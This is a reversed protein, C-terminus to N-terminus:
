NFLHPFAQKQAARIRRDEEIKFRITNESAGERIAEERTCFRRSGDVFLLQFRDESLMWWKYLAPKIM